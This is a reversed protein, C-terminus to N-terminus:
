DGEQPPEKAACNTRLLDEFVLVMAGKGKNGHGKRLATQYTATAAALVPMPIADRAAIGAASVMDKYASKMPYTGEFRRELIRPIFTESAHSRGTGSNIVTGMKEPDLGLSVAMPLVEAVAAMNINYLLQNVLKTLQGKGPGGMHIIRNGMHQFFPLATEFAREDGGCMITLTADIARSEMGSVPADLMMVGRGALRTTFDIAAAYDITSTDAVICGPKLQDAIGNEGFLVNGVVKEDPLSLFLLDIESVGKLTEAAPVGDAAFASVAQRDRDAVTLGVGNKLLNRAMAAGMKGLGIFGAKM